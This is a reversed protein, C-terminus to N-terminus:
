PIKGAAEEIVTVLTIDFVTNLFKDTLPNVAQHKAVFIEIIM